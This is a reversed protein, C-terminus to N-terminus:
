KSCLGYVEFIRSLHDEIRDGDPDVVARADADDPSVAVAFGAQQPQEGALLPGIGAPDGLAAPQPDTRQALGVGQVRIAAHAVREDAIRGFVLPGTVRPDAIHDRPQDGVDGPLRRDGRQGAALAAPHLQGSQQDAFPVDDREVLRGVMQVDLADGPQGAMQPLAPRAVGAPQQQHGVVAPKEVFDGGRRPLHVVPDDFREVAPVRRVDQLPDFPVPNGRGGLGLPLVQHALFQGPQAAARRGSRGLRLEADIRGVLQDLVHRRRAVPELQLPEGGLAQALVDDVELVDVQPAALPHQERVRGPSETGAVADPQDPHVAGPLGRHEAQQGTLECRRGPPHPVPAGDRELVQRLM